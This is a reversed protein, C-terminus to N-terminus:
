EDRYFKKFVLHLLLNTALKAGGGRGAEDFVNISNRNDYQAQLLEDLLVNASAGPLMMTGSSAEIHFVGVEDSSIVFNLQGWQEFPQASWQLLVGKDSLQRASYKYSGFKPQRGARELEREHHWQKTFPLKFGKTGTKKHALTHLCQEVYDNYSTLQEELYEAKKELGALTQRTADIDRQRDLRRRHKSRIDTALANLLEQYSNHRNVRFQPPISPSELTIINELAQSKLEAYTMSELDLLSNMRADDSFASPTESYVSQARGGRLSARPDFAGQQFAKRTSRPQGNEKEAAEEQVLQIWKDDDEHTIPRLLIEMLNSGSQVRIIFLVLRKTATFLSRAEASPDEQVKFRSKLTLTIEGGTGTNSLDSENGKASGLDSLLEKLPDDRSSVVANLNDTILNHIQFIDALKIYVTPKNRAHLDSFHDSDFHEEPRELTFMNQLADTWRGLAEGLWSNLPQLYLNDPGFLRGIACVQGLVMTVQALNRKHVPSLGRDIVGWMEPERLAPVLCYKWVWSGVLMTLHAPDHRPYQSELAQYQAATLQRIGYPMRHMTDELSQFFVDCLDRLDSLHKVYRSRVDQDRIIVERPIDRPRSSPRGTSLEENNILALHIQLPDSELDIAEEGCIGDRVLNGLLQKLYSRYIPSRVYTLFLRQCLSSNLLRSFDEISQTTRVTNDMATSLLQLFLYEERSKHAFGFLTMMLREFNKLEKEPLGRNGLQHLLRVLYGPQTQLHFFLEEYGSLKKRSSKNLGKLDVNNAAHRLSGGNRLLQSASGGFHKQHKVVEDLSIKNKVLLGVKVDLGEVYGEVQEVERVREVVLRRLREAELEGEFELHSDTLLHIHRRVVPLPPNAGKMLSEYSKGQQKARVFSQLKVVKQMNAHYHARKEAFQARVLHARVLSQLEVIQDEVTELATLDHDVDARVLVARAMAQLQIISAEEKEMEVLQEFIKQRIGYARIASQLNVVDDEHKELEALKVGIRRRTLMASAFAQLHTIRSECSQLSGATRAQQLRVLLGRALSQMEVTKSAHITHQAHEAQQRKRQILGRVAAQLCLVKASHSQVKTIAQQHRRRVNYARCMSQLSSISEEVDWLSNMIAAVRAREVLGRAAAQLDTVATHNANTQTEEWTESARWRGLAGRIAAQLEKLGHPRSQLQSRIKQTALRQQAGRWLSQIKVIDAQGKASHWARQRGQIRRRILLARAATQFRRTALDTIYKFDFVERAFGGRIHAQLMALQHEHDWLDQMVNGLQMRVLAGRVQSQLDEIVHKHQKLMEEPTPEPEPEPIEMEKRMGGFDPMKIGSRDIGKQTEELEEGTFELQGVLHSITFTTIGQRYLLWSLAHICYIVKPINKKEYLDVLEFRFLDPLEVAGLFRFFLAINDSHRFQLRASKFIKLSGLARQQSYSLTSALVNVVEALTVGDRLAEELQVIPPLKNPELVDELWARAEGIHCLYEYAQIHKRQSDMWRTSQWQSGFNSQAQQQSPRVSNNRQLKRRGVLGTVQEEPSHIALEETGDSAIKSLHRLQPTSSHQLKALDDDDLRPSSIDTSHFRVHGTARPAGGYRMSDSRSLTALSNKSVALASKPEASNAANDVSFARAHGATKAIPTTEHSAQTPQSVANVAVPNLVGRSTQGSTIPPMDEKLKKPSARSQADFTTAQVAQERAEWKAFAANKKVPSESRERKVSSRDAQEVFTDYTSPLSSQHSYATSANSSITGQRSPASSDSNHSITSLTHRLPSSKIPSHDRNRSRPSTDYYSYQSQM